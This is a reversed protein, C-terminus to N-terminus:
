VVDPLRYCTSGLRQLQRCVSHFTGNCYPHPVPVLTVIQRPKLFMFGRRVGRMCETGTVSSRTPRVGARVDFTRCFAVRSRGVGHPSHHMRWPVQSGIWCVFSGCLCIFVCVASARVLRGGLIQGLQYVRGTASSSIRHGSTITM